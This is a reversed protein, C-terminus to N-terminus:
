RVGVAAIENNRMDRRLAAAEDAARKQQDYQQKALQYQRDAQQNGSAAFLTKFFDASGAAIAGAGKQSARRGQEIRRSNDEWDKKRQAADAAMAGAGAVYNPDNPDASSDEFFTPGSQGKRRRPEKEFEQKTKSLATSLEGLQKASEALNSNWTELSVQQFQGGAFATRAQQARFAKQTKDWNKMELATGDSDADGLVSTRFGHIQDILSQLWGKINFKEIFIEAIGGLTLGIEDKFTSWLGTLTTSQTAAMDHFRGGADTADVFAQRVEDFSIKGDEMRKKLVAMTEGTRHSIEQLPNFGANILQLLDQGMLRGTSAIQGYALSIRGLKEESGMAVDGLMALDPLVSKANVGFNLLTQAADRIGGQSYPTKAAYQTLGGLMEKAKDASGLLTTFSAQAMESQAAVEVGWRAAGMVTLGATAAAAFALMKGGVASAIGGLGGVENRVQQAGASFQAHNMRLGIVIDGLTAM